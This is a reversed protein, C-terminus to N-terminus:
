IILWQCHNLQKLWSRLFLFLIILLTLALVITRKTIILRSTLTEKTKRSIELRTEQIRDSVIFVGTHLSSASVETRKLLFKLNKLNYCNIKIPPYLVQWTSTRIRFILTAATAQPLTASRAWLIWVQFTTETQLFLHLNILFTVLLNNVIFTQHLQDEVM